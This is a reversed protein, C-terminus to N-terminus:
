LIPFIGGEDDACNWSSFFSSFHDQDFLIM